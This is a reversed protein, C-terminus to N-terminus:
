GQFCGLYWRISVLLGQISACPCTAPLPGWNQAVAMQSYIQPEKYPARRFLLWVIQPRFSAESKQVVGAVDPLAAAATGGTLKADGPVALAVEGLSDVSADWGIDSTPSQQVPGSGDVSATDFWSEIISRQRM